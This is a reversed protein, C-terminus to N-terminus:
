AGEKAERHREENIAERELEKLRLTEERLLALYEPMYAQALRRLAREEVITLDAVTM